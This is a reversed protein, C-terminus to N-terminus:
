KALRTREAIGEISTRAAGRAWADARKVTELDVVEEVQHERLVNRIVEPIGTFPLREALFAQVAAESAANFVAPATGGRRGAQRGLDFAPFRGPPVREFTLAGVAALDLSPAAFPLRDPYTLAYLVPITMSPQGLQALVSGDRFEVLSHVISQPHIVVDVQEYSLGFLFHAEMVELAKNTLTASDITIKAGMDWTPHQLAQAPTVDRLDVPDRDRFPGGSATLVIRSVSDADAGELCQFVASHESDVPVLEGRRSLARQVLEGGVVLSEKNALAVRKDAELAVLTPELGAAGVLANVVIDADPHAAAELVAEQGLELRTSAPAPGARAAGDALVALGAGHEEAQRLLEDGNRNATLAVVRFRDPFASIVELTTRGISGTSGLIVVGRVSM